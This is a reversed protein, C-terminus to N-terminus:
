AHKAIKALNACAAQAAECAAVARQHAAKTGPDQTRNFSVDSLEGLASEIKKSAVNASGVLYANNVEQKAQPTRTAASPRGMMAGIKKPDVAM